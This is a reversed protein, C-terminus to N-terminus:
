FSQLKYRCIKYCFINPINTEGINAPSIEMPEDHPGQTSSQAPSQTTAFLSMNSTSLQFITVSKRFHENFVECNTM